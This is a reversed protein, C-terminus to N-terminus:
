LLAEIVLAVGDEDNSSTLEDAVDKVADEANAVAVGHGAWTLMERDNLGDGFALVESREVGLRTCLQALGSAKSVGAAMVEVFPAGSLTMEFLRNDLEGADVLGRTIRYLEPSGLTEHRFVLKLASAGTVVELPESHMAAPDRKHDSFTALDAYGDQAVFREGADRVAAYRVGPVAADLVTVFRAIVEAPVEDSFLLERTTLHVGFAGNSCLAWQDFGLVPQLHRLGVPNRATAPVVHIGASAAADLAELTRPSVGGASDLLTRDLDTAILRVSM